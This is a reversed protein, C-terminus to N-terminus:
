LSTSIMLFYKFSFCLITGLLGLEHDDV